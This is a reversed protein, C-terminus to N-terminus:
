CRYQANGRLLSVVHLPGPNGEEGLQRGLSRDGSARSLQDAMEKLVDSLAPELVDVDHTVRVVFERLILAAGGVIVLETEAHSNAALLEDFKRLTDLVDMEHLIM